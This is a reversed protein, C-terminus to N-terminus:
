IRNANDTDVFLAVDEGPSYGKPTKEAVLKDYIAQAKELPLTKATKTGTQLTSGRRGWAANVVYGSGDAAPLLEASYVKDSSGQRFYLTINKRVDGSQEAVAYADENKAEPKAVSKKSEQKKAPKEAPIDGETYGKKVKEAIAKNVAKQCADEDAFEKTQTQGATGTKGYNVTYSNGSVEITWFKDSKDDSYIFTPKM